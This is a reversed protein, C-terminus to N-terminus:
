HAGIIFLDGGSGCPHKIRALIEECQYEKKGDALCERKLTAFRQDDADMDIAILYSLSVVVLVM